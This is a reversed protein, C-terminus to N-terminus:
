LPSGALPQGYKVRAEEVCTDRAKGRYMTCRSRADNYYAAYRAQSVRVYVRMNHDEALADLVAPAGTLETKSFGAPGQREGQAVDVSANVSQAREAVRPSMAHVSALTVATLAAATLPIRMFHM